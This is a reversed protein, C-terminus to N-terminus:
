PAGGRDRAQQRLQEETIGLNRRLQELADKTWGVRDLWRRRLSAWAHALSEGPNPADDNGFETNCCPCISYSGLVIPLGNVSREGIDHWADEEGPRGLIGCVPCVPRNDQSRRLRVTEHTIDVWVLQDAFSLDSQSM